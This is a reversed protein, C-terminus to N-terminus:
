AKFDDLSKGAELATVLWGPKRGKGAWTQSKDDPNRYLAPATKKKPNLSVLEDLSFGAQLAVEEIKARADLKDKEQKETIASDLLKRFDLLDKSSLELLKEFTINKLM